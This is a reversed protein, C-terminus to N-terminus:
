RAEYCEIFEFDFVIDSLKFGKIRVLAFTLVETFGAAAIEQRLLDSLKNISYQFLILLRNIIIM